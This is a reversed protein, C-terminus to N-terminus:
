GASKDSGIRFHNLKYAFSRFRIEAIDMFKEFAEAAATRRSSLDGNEAACAENKVDSVLAFAAGDMVDIEIEETFIERTDVGYMTYSESERHAAKKIKDKLSFREKQVDKEASYLEEIAIREIADPMLLVSADPAIYAKKVAKVSTDNKIVSMSQSRRLYRSGTEFGVSVRGVAPENVPEYKVRSIGARHRKGSFGNANTMKIEKEAIGIYLIM